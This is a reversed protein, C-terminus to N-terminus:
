PPSIGSFRTPQSTEHKPVSMAQAAETRLLERAGVELGEIKSSAVSEARLLLRALAETDALAYLRRM